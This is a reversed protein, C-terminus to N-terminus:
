AAKLISGGSLGRGAGAILGPIERLTVLLLGGAARRRAAWAQWRDIRARVSAADASVADGTVDVVTLTGSGAIPSRGWFLGPPAMTVRRIEWLGWVPSHCAWGPPAPRRSGRADDLRDRCAVRIGAAALVAKHEAPLGGQIWASDIAGGLSGARDLLDRLQPRELDPPVELVACPERTASQRGHGAFDALEEIGAVWSIPLSARDCHRLCAAVDIRSMGQPPRLCLALTAPPGSRVM